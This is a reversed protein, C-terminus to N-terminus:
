KNEGNKRFGELFICSGIAAKGDVVDEAFTRCDPAGCVGCEKGPLMQHVEEVQEQRKIAESYSREASARKPPEIERETFYWGKKYLQKLYGSKVKRDPGFMRIFRQITHKAQYKDCVTLPGGICGEACTRFEVYDIENLLGMEIKELYRITEQMGSVAMFNGHGMGAIEGGSMCWGIGVGSSYLSCRDKGSAKLQKVLDHYIKNIGIAGSLNSKKVVLPNKISIMKASCPTIHFVKIDKEDLGYKQATQKKAERAVLERPPVIPPINKLLTPFRYAILRVVVPCVPSILPRPAGAKNRNDNMYLEVAINFMEQIECQDYVDYFGMSKLASDVESPIVGPGFQTYLVPSVSLITKTREINASGTTIAKIAGRPCVRICEGCDICDGEIFAVSRNRVRIARTPCVKMCLVCGNCLTEDIQVYHDTKNKPSPDAVM